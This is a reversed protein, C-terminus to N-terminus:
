PVSAGTAPGSEPRVSPHRYYRWIWVGLLLIVGTTVFSSVITGGLGAVRPPEDPKALGTFLLLGFILGAHLGTGIWLSGARLFLGGLVLGLLFLNLAKVAGQLSSLDGGAQALM